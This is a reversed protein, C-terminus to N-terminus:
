ALRREKRGRHTVLAQQAEPVVVQSVATVTVKTGAARTGKPDPAYDADFQTLFERARRHFDRGQELLWRRIEPVADQYINDYETRANLNKTEHSFRTNEDTADVLTQVNRALIDAAKEPDGEFLSSARVLRLGRATREVSGNRELEFLITGAHLHKGEAYVVREFENGEGLYSLIRPAGSNTIFRKDSEWRSLIRSVISTTGPPTALGEKIITDVTDRHIGTLVSIRSTNVKPSVKRIEDEAVEVFVKKALSTFDQFSLGHRLVYRVVPRLLLRALRLPSFPHGQLEMSAIGYLPM